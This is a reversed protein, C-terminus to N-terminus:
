SEIPTSSGGNYWLKVKDGVFIILAAVLPGFLFGITMLTEM